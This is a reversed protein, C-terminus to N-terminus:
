AWYEAPATRYARGGPTTWTFSGPSTQTLTWRSLQKCKHHCRCVPGLNCECTRGGAQYPTTHDLDCRQAPRRCGPATCTPNRIKILHRLVPGPQYGRSERRHTCNGTELPAIKVRRAWARHDPPGPGAPPGARACGHAIPRGAPDTVTICWRSAPNAALRAALARSDDADLPGYGAADGPSESWGLWTALPVTLHVSGRLVPPRPPVLPGYPGPRHQAGPVGAQAEGPPPGALTEPPQGSLLHLYAQARLQDLTGEAGGMRMDLALATLNQDAALVGAPPLDRGALAATGAAETFAEVRADQLAKEKRRKAAAPDAAIVARHAARRLQATTQGPAKGILQAEVAAAHEDNLGALEDTIVAARREDIAGAALAARTLPLRDLGVALSLTWDAGFRTLTLTMAVEDSIHEVPRWDGSARAEAARRAALESIASLKLWTAWAALRSAAQTLGTLQDDDLHGPGAGHVDSALAALQPGPLMVDAPGGLAFAARPAPPPGPISGTSAPGTPQFYEDTLDEPEPYDDWGPGYDDPDALWDQGPDDPPGAPPRPHPVDAM